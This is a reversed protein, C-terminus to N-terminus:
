GGNGGSSRSSCHRAIWEMAEKERLGFFSRLHVDNQPFPVEIKNDALATHLEWLYAAQVASPRKVADQNVWVVLEFDLSSAGFGKFWVQPARRDQDTITFQVRAAAELGAKRVILKDSGYSVGFPVRVRRNAEKLTWNIVHKNVLESNPVLVDINDNTNIHTCRLNVEKVEGTIGSELEIFDGIKLNREFLIILGSVFNNIVSQLGFGLGVGVAAAIVALSSLDFGVMQLSIYVGVIIFLYGFVKEVTYQASEQLHARRMAWVMFRRRVLREIVIVATVMLLFILISAATVQTQGLKFLPYNMVRELTGFIRGAIENM